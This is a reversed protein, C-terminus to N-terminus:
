ALAKNVSYYLFNDIHIYLSKLADNELKAKKHM